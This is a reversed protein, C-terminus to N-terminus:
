DDICRLLWDRFVMIQELDAKDASYSLFYENSTTMSDGFPAILVGSNLTDKVMLTPILAVGMGLKAAEILMQFHDFSVGSFLDREIPQAIGQYSFWDPWSNMRSALNLLPYNVIEEISVSDYAITPSCVPIVSESLLHHTVAKPWHDGGYHLIVDVANLDIDGGELAKVNLQFQPNIQQFTVLRPILWHIAFTPLSALTLATKEDERHRMKFCANEMGDLLPLIERYYSAGASTLVLRKNLRIFLDRSLFDELNRIQRSVASQSLHLEQAARTFSLHRVSAEFCKLSMSSPLYRRMM